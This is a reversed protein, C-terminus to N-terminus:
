ALAFASPCASPMSYTASVVRSALPTLLSGPQSGTGPDNSVGSALSYGHEHEVDEDGAAADHVAGAQGPKRASTPMAAVADGGDAPEALGLALGRM